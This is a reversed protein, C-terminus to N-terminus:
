GQAVSLRLNLKELNKQAIAIRRQLLAKEDLGVKAEDFPKKTVVMTYFIRAMKNATAVIAQLHGGKSKQRPLVRWSRDQCEKRLKCVAQLGTRGQEETQASQKVTAEWRLNQQESRPQVM